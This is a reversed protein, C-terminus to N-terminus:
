TIISSRVYQAIVMVQDTLLKMGDKPPTSLKYVRSDYGGDASMARPASSLRTSEAPGPDGGVDDNDYEDDADPSSM